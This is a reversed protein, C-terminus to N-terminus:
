HNVSMLCIVCILLRILIGNLYIQYYHYHNVYFFMCKMNTVKSTDMNINCVTLDKCGNFIAEMSTIGNSSLISVSTLNTNAFLRNMKGDEKSVIVIYKVSEEGKLSVIAILYPTNKLGNDSITVKASKIMENSDLKYATTHERYDDIVLKTNNLDVKYATSLKIESGGVPKITVGDPGVNIDADFKNGNGPDSDDGTRCCKCCGKSNGNNKKGCCGSNIDFFYGILALILLFVKM